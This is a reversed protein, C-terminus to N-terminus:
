SLSHWRRMAFAIERPTYVRFLQRRKYFYLYNPTVWGGAYIVLFVIIYPIHGIGELDYLVGLNQAAIATWYLASIALHVVCWLFGSPRLRIMSHYTIATCILLICAGVSSIPLPLDELRDIGDLLMKGTALVFLGPQVLLAILYISIYARMWGTPMPSEKLVAICEKRRM